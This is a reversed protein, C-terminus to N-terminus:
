PGCVVPGSLASDATRVRFTGRLPVAWRMEWLTYRGHASMVRMEVAPDDDWAVAADTSDVVTVRAVGVSGSDVPWRSVHGLRVSAVLTDRSCALNAVSAPLDRKGKRTSPVRPLVDKAGGVSLKEPPAVSPSLRDGTSLTRTLGALVRGFMAAEGPGYLTSAGEYYQATYEEPTAVYEVYGNTLGLIHAGKVRLGSSDAAALMESRIRRGATTTIEAPVAGILRDGLRLVSVQAFSPVGGKVFLRNPLSGFFGDLLKRKPAQCDSADVNPSGPGQTLGINFIGLLKWENMRTFADAAGVLTTMGVARESCIGLSDAKRELPLTVFARALEFQDTLSGGLSQFLHIASDGVQAGILDVARRAASICGAIQRDGLPKWQWLTHVFPGGPTALPALQPVSCRSQPPWAPSVDGEAGNAFLHFSRPVFGLERKAGFQQDIYRELRREVVGHIDADLLDNVPSNGTGHMPFITFAGAPRFEGDSVGRLDVRLMVMEPDILRYEPLLSTPASAAAVPPPINRLMAPLSRIRTFGWVSRSGWAVKAPRLSDVATQIARAIRQSLSDLMLEDFGVVSSGQDNYAAAEFFNGPGAHTHTASILLRDVGIGLTPGTIAAVRRHLLASSLPFDAVVLALRNGRGDSLVLARAYLRLRHGRAKRGEPGNGTLGVGPPPTIDTRGFGAALPESRPHSPPPSLYADQVLRKGGCALAFVACGLLVWHRNM